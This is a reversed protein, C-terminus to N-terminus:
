KRIMFYFNSILFVDLMFLHMSRAVMGVMGKRNELRIVKTCVYGTHLLLNFVKEQLM